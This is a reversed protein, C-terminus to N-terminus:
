IESEQMVKEEIILTIIDAKVGISNFWRQMAVAESPHSCPQDKAGTSYPPYWRVISDYSKM